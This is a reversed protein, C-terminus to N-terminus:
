DDDTVIDPVGSGVAEETLAVGGEVEVESGLSSNSDKARIGLGLFGLRRRSESSTLGHCITKAKGKGSLRMNLVDDFFMEDSPTIPTLPATSITPLSVSSGSTTGGPTENINGRIGRLRSLSNDPTMRSSFSTEPVPGFGHNMARLGDDFGSNYACGSNRSWVPCHGPGTLFTLPHSSALLRQATDKAERTCAVCRGASKEDEALSRVICEGSGAVESKGPCPYPDNTIELHDHDHDDSESESITASTPTWDSTDDDYGDIQQTIDASPPRNVVPSPEPPHRCGLNRVFIPNMVPLRLIEDETIVPMRGNLLTEFSMYLRDVFFPRCTHCVMFNCPPSKIKKQKQSPSTTASEPPTATPTNAPTMPTTAQVAPATVGVSAIISEGPLRPAPSSDASGHESKRIVTLLHKKQEILKDVQEFTYDGKRIGCIVTSGMSLTEALRAQVDFYSSGDPVVPFIDPDTAKDNQPMDRDQRCAYVFGLSPVKHCNHCTHVGYLRDQPDRLTLSAIRL